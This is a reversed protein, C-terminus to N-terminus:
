PAESACPPADPVVMHPSRQVATTHRGVRAFGEAGGDLRRADLTVLVMSEPVLSAAWSQSAITAASCRVVPPLRFGCERVGEIATGPGADGRPAVALEEATSSGCEPASVLTGVTVGVGRPSMPLVTNRGWRTTATEPHRKSWRFVGPGPVAGRLQFCASAAVVSSGGAGGGMLSM